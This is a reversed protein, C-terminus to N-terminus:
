SQRGRTASGPAPPTKANDSRPLIEYLYRDGRMLQVYLHRSDVFVRLNNLGLDQEKRTLETSMATFEGTALAEELDYHLRYFDDILQSDRNDRIDLDFPRGGLIDKVGGEIHAYTERLNAVPGLDLSIRLRGGGKQEIEYGKIEAQRAFFVKLPKDVQSFNYMWQLGFLLVMGAALALLIFHVRLGQFQM